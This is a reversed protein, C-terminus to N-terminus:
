MPNHGIKQKWEMKNNNDFPLIMLLFEMPPLPPILVGWGRLNFFFFLQQSKKTKNQKTKNKNKNKTKKKKKSLKREEGFFLVWCDLRMLFNAGWFRAEFVDYFDWM